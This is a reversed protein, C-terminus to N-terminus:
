EETEFTVERVGPRVRLEGAVNSTLNLQLAAAGVSRTASGSSSMMGPFDVAEAKPRATVPAAM